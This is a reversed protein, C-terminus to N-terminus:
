KKAKELEELEKLKEQIVRNIQAIKINLSDRERVLDFIEAKKKIIENM